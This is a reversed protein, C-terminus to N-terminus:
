AAVVGEDCLAAHASLVSSKLTDVVQDVEARTIVLPPSMVNLHAIPRVFLGAAECRDSILKSINVEDPLLEKTEKDAVYEVCMMFRRGRVDGVLPLDRLEQLRAEFHDGVDRVHACINEREMIEINRLGVACAVPHGSYTFGHTFWADPDPASIAEYIGDSLLTAGLPIYGSSIGKACIIIDPQIDFEDQSAFMHGLRGFATVVEDSVYLIDNRRCVDRMRPLYDAPPVVVGGAGMIPEAIFAAVRDAGIEDIKAEFEAVLGDCFAAEDLDDEARYFNPASIHHIISTEYHFHPSRDTAKGTLSMGLYTSGHYASKRSIVHRKSPNGRRSHYYHALRIASDVSASGSSSYMVHNIDGPALEALKAALEAAPPNTTDVFTSFYPLRRAQEAMVDALEDRGYGLNVCWMGGIGDIYRNGEADYVCSGEGHTIVMSGEEKFSDFHQWPHLFHAQDKQRIDENDFTNRMADVM